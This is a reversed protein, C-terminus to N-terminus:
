QEGIAVLVKDAQHRDSEKEGNSLNEYSTNIQTVWREVKEAPITVSGDPNGPCISFLYKMWHAWIQHQVNAIIERKNM